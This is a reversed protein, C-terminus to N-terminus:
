GGVTQWGDALNPPVLIEVSLPPSNPPRIEVYIQETQAAQDISNLHFVMFGQENSNLVPSGDGNSVFLMAGTSNGVISVLTDFEATFPSTGNIGDYVDAIATHNGVRLMVGTSNQAMSVYNTGITELPIVMADVMGSSARMYISGDVLLPSSVQSIGQQVADKGTQTAFLGMNVVMFSFAAAVIVFAILVIAAEIGVMGRNRKLLANARREIKMLAKVKSAILM